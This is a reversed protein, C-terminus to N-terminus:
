FAFLSAFLDNTILLSCREDLSSVAEEDLVDVLELGDGQRPPAAVGNAIHSCLDLVLEANLRVLLAL